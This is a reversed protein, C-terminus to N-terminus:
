SPLLTSPHSFPSASALTLPVLLHFSAPPRLLNAHPQGHRIRTASSPLRHARSRPPTTSSSDSLRGEPDRAAPFEPCSLHNAPTSLLSMPRLLLPVLRPASADLTQSSASRKSAYAVRSIRRDPLPTTPAIPQRKSFLRPPM